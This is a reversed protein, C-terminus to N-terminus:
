LSSDLTKAHELHMKLVPLNKEAYDRVPKNKSQTIDYYLQVAESHDKVMMDMYAKDFAPGSLKAVSDLAAQHMPSVQTSPVAYKDAALKNLEASSKTHDTIMMKAFEVVKPNTSKSQAVNAAKIETLGAESAKKIFNLSMDDVLTKENYNKARRNDNCAVAAFCFLAIAGAHYIRKM